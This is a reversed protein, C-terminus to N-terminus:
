CICIFVKFSTLYELLLVECNPLLCTANVMFDFDDSIIFKQRYSKEDWCLKLKFEKLIYKHNEEFASYSSLNSIEQYIHANVARNGFLSIIQKLDARVVLINM